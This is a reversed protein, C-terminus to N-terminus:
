HNRCKQVGRLELDTGPVVFIPLFNSTMGAGDGHELISVSCYILWPSLFLFDLLVLFSHPCSASYNSFSFVVEAHPLSRHQLSVKFILLARPQPLFFLRCHSKSTLLIASMKLWSVSSGLRMQRSAQPYHLARSLLQMSLHTGSEPSLRDETM